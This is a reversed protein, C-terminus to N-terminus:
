DGLPILPHCNSEIRPVIALVIGSGCGLPDKGHCLGQRQRDTCLYVKVKRAVIHSSSKILNAFEQGLPIPLHTPTKM